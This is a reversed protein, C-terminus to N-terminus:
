IWTTTSDNGSAGTKAFANVKRRGATTGLDLPSQCTGGALPTGSSDVFTAGFVMADGEVDSDPVGDGSDDVGDGNTDVTINDTTLGDPDPLPWDVNSSGQLPWAAPLTDLYYLWHVTPMRLHDQNFAAFGFQVDDVGSLVSFLAEKAGYLRSDPDDAHGELPVNGPGLELNMSGSTDLIVFVYPKAVKFRLLDRDDGATPAALELAATALAGGLLLLRLRRSRPRQTM